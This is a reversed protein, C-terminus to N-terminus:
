VRGTIPTSGTQTSQYTSLAEIQSHNRSDGHHFHGPLCITAATSDKTWPLEVWLLIHNHNRKM